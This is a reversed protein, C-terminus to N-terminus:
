FDSSKDTKNKINNIIRKSVFYIVIVLTVAGVGLCIGMIFFALTWNHTPNLPGLEDYTAQVTTETQNKSKKSTSKKNEKSDSKSSDKETAEVNSRKSNVTVNSSTCTGINIYEIDPSVCESVSFDINGDGSTLSKFNLTFIIDGNKINQGFTNLFVAKVCSDLENYSIEAEENKAKISRFEFLSKNYTFEFTAASLKTDSTAIMDISFLRNKDCSCDSLKFSISDSASVSFISNMIIIFATLIIFLKKMNKEKRIM